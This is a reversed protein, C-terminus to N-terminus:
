HWVPIRCLEGWIGTFRAQELPGDLIANEIPGCGRLGTKHGMAQNSGGPAQKPSGPGCIAIYCIM